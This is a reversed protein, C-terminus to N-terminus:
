FPLNQNQIFPIEPNLIEAIIRKLEILFPDMNEQSILSENAGRKESFNMKLFGSNLNKFSLIGAEVPKSFGNKNEESFLFSYLMVQLPKTYKYDSGLVSFDTIKLDKAEVKGTKYDIIRTVGDLEDIRDVIGKLKIPFNIGEINIETSLGKELAIIKLQKNQNLLQLEQNLFRKIHNKCVEFILKNKGTEINGKEYYKEFYKVLLDHKIKQMEAINEKNLYKEIFPKYLDELVEHIVSGMTNAAITEEVEDEEYIELIRQEYFKVPDYIYSALASPSIGKTFVMQLKQMIEPTKEIQLIPFITHQVKPSIITKTIDPNKIELQTLFRSKEGSGYGDSETNYILYINKARHLLRQFHYSFIADKEQYTPM